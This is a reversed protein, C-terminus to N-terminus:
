QCYRIKVDPFKIDALNLEKFVDIIELTQYQTKRKKEMKRPVEKQMNYHQFCKMQEVKQFKM